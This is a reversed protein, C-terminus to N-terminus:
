QHSDWFRWCVSIVPNYGTKLSLTHVRGKYSIFQTQDLNQMLSIAESSRTSELGQVTASQDVGWTWLLDNRLTAIQRKNLQEQGNLIIARSIASGRAMESLTRTKIVHLCM